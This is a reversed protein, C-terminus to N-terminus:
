GACLMLRVRVAQPQLGTQPTLEAEDELACPEGPLQKLALRENLLTLTLTESEGHLFAMLLTFSYRSLSVVFRNVLFHQALAHTRVHAEDQLASLQSLEHEYCPHEPRYRELLARAADAHGGLLLQLYCHVLM